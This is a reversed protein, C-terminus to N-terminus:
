LLAKKIIIDSDNVTRARAAPAYEEMFAFVASAEREEPELYAIVCKTLDRPMYPDPSLFTIGDYGYQSFIMAGPQVQVGEIVGDIGALWGKITPIYRMSVTLPEGEYMIKFTQNPENTLDYLTM